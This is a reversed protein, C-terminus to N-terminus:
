ISKQNLTIEEKLLEQLIQWKSLNKIVKEDQKFLSKEDFEMKNINKYKIKGILKLM